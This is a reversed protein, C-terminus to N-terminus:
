PIRGVVGPGQSGLNSPILLLRPLLCCIASVNTWPATAGALLSKKADRSAATRASPTPAAPAAGTVNASGAPSAPLAGSRVLTTTSLSAPPFIEITIEHAF